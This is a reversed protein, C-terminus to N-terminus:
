KSLWTNLLIQNVEIFYEYSLLYGIATTLGMIIYQIWQKWLSHRCYTVTSISDWQVTNSTVRWETDVSNRFCSSDTQQQCNLCVRCQSLFERSTVSEGIASTLLLNETYIWWFILEILAKCHEIYLRGVFGSLAFAIWCGWCPTFRLELNRRFRWFITDM